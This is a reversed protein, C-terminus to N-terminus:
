SAWVESALRRADEDAALAVLGFRTDRHRFAWLDQALAAMAKALAAKEQRTLM